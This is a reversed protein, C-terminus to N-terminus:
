AEEEEEKKLLKLYEKAKIKRPIIDQLFQLTVESNVVEALDCYQLNSTDKSQELSFRALAQIFLETAKGTTFLAEQSISSVDPSSKMITKVRSLPLLSLTKDAMSAM